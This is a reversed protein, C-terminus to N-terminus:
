DENYLLRFSGFFKATNGSSVFSREGLVQLLFVRGQVVYYRIRAVGSLSGKRVEGETELGPYGEFDITKKTFNGTGINTYSGRAMSEIFSGSEMDVQDAAPFDFYGVAYAGKNLTVSYMHIDITGLPSPTPMKEKRPRGPFEAAFWGEDSEFPEWKGGPGCGTGMFLVVMLLVIARKM